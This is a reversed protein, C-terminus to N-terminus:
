PKALGHSKRYTVTHEKRIQWQGEPSKHLVWNVKMATDGQSASFEVKMAEKDLLERSMTPSEYATGASKKSLAPDAFTKTILACFKARDYKEKQTPADEREVDSEITADAAYLDVLKPDSAQDRKKYEEFLQRASEYDAEKSAAAAGEALAARTSSAGLGISLAITFFAFLDRGRAWPSKIQIAQISKARTSSAKTM